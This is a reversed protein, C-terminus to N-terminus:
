STCWPTRMWSEASTAAAIRDLPVDGRAPQGVLGDVEDVLGRRPQADLDVRHRELDVDDFPADALELDLAGRERLLGVVRRLGAEVREFGLQRREGLLAVAHDRVPLALLFRDGRDAFALLPELGRTEVGVAGLAVAIELPGRSSRYPCRGTSSRSISDIDSRSTSSWCSPAM